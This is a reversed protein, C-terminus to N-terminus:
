PATRGFFAQNRLKTLNGYSVDLLNTVDRSSVIGDEHAQIILSIFPRGLDRVKLPYYIPPSSQDKKPKISERFKDYALQFSPRMENYTDWSALGLDVLRLLVSEASPATGLADGLQRLYDYNLVASRDHLYLVAERPMLAAATAADCFREEGTAQQRSLDCLADKRLGLHVLEHLLTFIKGRPADASNLVVIAANAGHLSFGRMEKYGIKQAQMVLIGRDGLLSILSQLLDTPDKATSTLQDLNLQKRLHKGSEEAGDGRNLSPLSFKFPIELGEEVADDIASVRQNAALILKRLAKSERGRVDERRFDPIRVPQDDKPPEPLFLAGLPRDYAIALKRLQVVTPSQEGKEWSLIQQERVGARKAAEEIDLNASRRAWRLVNPRVSELRAAM